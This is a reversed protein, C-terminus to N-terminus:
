APNCFSCRVFTGVVAYTTRGNHREGTHVVGYGRCGCGDGVEALADSLAVLRDYNRQSPTHGNRWRYVAARSVGMEAAIKAVSWQAVKLNTLAALTGTRPAIQEAPAPTLEAITDPIPGYIGKLFTLYDNVDDETGFARTHEGILQAVPGRTLTEVYFHPKCAIVSHTVEVIARELRHTVVTPLVVATSTM